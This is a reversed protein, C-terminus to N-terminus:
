EWFNIKSAIESLRDREIEFALRALENYKETNKSMANFKRVAVMIGYWDNEKICDDIEFHELVLDITQQITM